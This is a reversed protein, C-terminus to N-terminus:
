LVKALAVKWKPIKKLFSEQFKISGNSSPNYTDSFHPFHMHTVLPTLM